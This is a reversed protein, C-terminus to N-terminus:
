KDLGMKDLWLQIVAKVDPVLESYPGSIKIDKAIYPILDKSHITVLPEGGFMSNLESEAMAYKIHGINTWFIGGLCMFCPEITSYLTCEWLFDPDYKRSARSSLVLSDHATHDKLEGVANHQELLVKGNKDVLLAGFPENGSDFADQSIKIARKLYHIDKEWAM